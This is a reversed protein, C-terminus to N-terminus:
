DNLYDVNNIKVKEIISELSKRSNEFTWEAALEKSKISYQVKTNEFFLSNICKAIDTTDLPDVLYGNEGHVVLDDACGCNKSVIVPLGAILAENIVLGWPEVISPLIMADGAFYHKFVENQESLFGTIILPINLAKAKAKIYDELTGGGVILFVVDSSKVKALAEIVSDINKIDILRGSYILVKQNEKIGLKKRYGQRYKEKEAYLSNILRSDVTLYQNYIKETPYSFIQNFYKKSVKGNGFIYSSNKVVINKIFKKFLNEKLTLRNSSIGDFLLIYPKKLMKCLLSLCIYTPTEYGGLILLDHSKVLNILGENIYGYKKFLKHGVLDIEKFNNAKHVNWVRNDTQKDTYYVSLDLNEIESFENLQLTRYPARLNTVFGINM